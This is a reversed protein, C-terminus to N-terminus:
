GVIHILMFFGINIKRFLLHRFIRLSVNAPPPPPSSNENTDLTILLLGNLNYHYKSHPEIWLSQQGVTRLHIKNLSLFFFFDLVAYNLTLFGYESTIYETSRQKGLLIGTGLIDPKFETWLMQVATKNTYYIWLVTIDTDTM